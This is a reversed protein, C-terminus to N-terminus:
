VGGSEPTQSSALRRSRLSWRLLGVAYTTYYGAIMGVLLLTLPTLGAGPASSAGASGPFGGTAFRWAIRCVLLVSLAIGLHASPTYFRGAPTVEFRTLRLGLLGLAIGAVAGGALYMWIADPARLSAFALMVIVLPFLVITIWPRVPSLRQRGITRRIRSHLRWAILAIIAITLLVHQASPTV